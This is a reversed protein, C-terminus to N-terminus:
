LNGGDWKSIFLGFWVDHLTLRTIREVVFKHVFPSHLMANKIFQAIKLQIDVNRSCVASAESFNVKDLTIEYCWFWATMEDVLWFFPFSGHFGLLVWFLVLSFHRLRPLLSTVLDHKTKTTCRIPQPFPALKQLGFVSHVLALGICDRIVKLM